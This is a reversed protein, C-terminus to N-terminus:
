NKWSESLLKDITQQRYARFEPQSFGNYDIHEAYDGTIRHGIRERLRNSMVEIESYLNPDMKRRHMMVSNDFLLLDGTDNQWWYDYEEGSEFFYENIIGLIRDSEQQSMGEFGTILHGYHLGKHGGPSTLVLPIRFDEGANNLLKVMEIDKDRGNPIVKRPDYKCICILEDLESRFSESQSNYWDVTQFYSTASTTMNEAGYLLVLPQYDYSMFENSHWGLETDGFIGMLDGKETTKGSVRHWGPAHRGLTLHKYMEMSHKEEENLYLTPDKVNYKLSWRNPRRTVINSAHNVLNSFNDQGKGRVVTLLTKLNIERLEKYAEPQDWEFDDVYAGFSGMKPIHTVKM